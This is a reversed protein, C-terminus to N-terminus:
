LQKKFPRSKFSTPRREPTSADTPTEPDGIEGFFLEGNTIKVISYIPSFYDKFIPHSSCKDAILTKKENLLFTGACSPDGASSDANPADILEPDRATIKFRLVNEDTDAIGSGDDRKTLTHMGYQSLRFTLNSCSADTFLDGNRAYSQGSYVVREIIFIPYDAEDFPMCDTTWTGDFESITVGTVNESGGGGASGDSTATVTTGSSTAAGTTGGVAFGNESQFNSRSSEIGEKTCAALAAMTESIGIERNM